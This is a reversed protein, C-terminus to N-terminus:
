HIGTALFPPPGAIWGFQQAVALFAMTVGVLIIAIRRCEKSV